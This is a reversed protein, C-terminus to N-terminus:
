AEGKPIVTSGSTYYVGFVDDDKIATPQVKKQDFSESLQNVPIVKWKGARLEDFRDQFEDEIIIASVDVDNFIVSCRSTPTKEVDLTVCM